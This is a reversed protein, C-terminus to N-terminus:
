KILIKGQRIGSSKFARQTNFIKPVRDHLMATIDSNYLELKIDALLNKYGTYSFHSLM